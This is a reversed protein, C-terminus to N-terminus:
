LIKQFCISDEIDEYQGYNPIVVFGNKKYLAIAEPYKKGTELICSTYNEEKAWFELETLVKSAIGKGRAEPNVYMRKIEAVGEEYFKFAGCAVAKLEDYVVIANKISDTKNFQAFFTHEDGDRLKIDKDLKNILSIFDINEPTTRIIKIM